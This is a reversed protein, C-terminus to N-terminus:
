WRHEFKRRIYAALANAISLILLLVVIGAATREIFGPEASDSWLFIQVPMATAPSLIKEPLDVVFAVMGIMLLPATEGIARSIGLITGTMIGPLALPLLHHKTIQMKTAGLAMVSDRLNKPITRLATRTAIVITPFIMLALTLGGALASSRPVGLLQVYVTLGLLGFIISPVAALNNLTIEITQTIFNQKAFEELYIASMVGLPLALMLCSLIVWLSGIMAGLFGATEPERSDGKTFFSSNFKKAIDGNERLAKIWELQKESLGRTGELAAASIKEKLYMDVTSSTPAWLTLNDPLPAGLKLIEDRLSYASERSVLSILYISDRRGTAEPFKKQLSKLLMGSFDVEDLQTLNINETKLNVSLRIENRWLISIGQSFINLFLFLIVAFGLFVSSLGAIRFITDRKKRVPMSTLVRARIRRKKLTNVWLRRLNKKNKLAKNKM